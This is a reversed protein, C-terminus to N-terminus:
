NNIRLTIKLSDLQNANFGKIMYSLADNQYIINNPNSTNLISTNKINPQTEKNMTSELVEDILDLQTPYFLITRENLLQNFISEDVQGSSTSPHHQLVENIDKCPLTLSSLTINPLRVKLYISYKEVATKGAEDNDFAFIIEDLQKLNKIAETIEENLGNTGYCAIVSYEHAITQVQLLTAADIISETLILKTITPKPYKPYLGSRNKLYFHKPVTGEPAEPVPATSRFYLSVIEHHPNRLAFVICNKGFVSYAKGGKNNLLNKDLLLGYQLSQEILQEEKRQGHHFQGSNYGVEIQKYNLQRQQLYQKAPNSALVANKFYTFINQLFQEKSTSVSSVSPISTTPHNPAVSKVSPVSQLLEICKKLAEHKSINEKHMVFDIVDLSKGHTKCNGSFCYATNTKPYIQMSPTKDKHFPCNIRSNTDAQLQYHKLVETLSLQQKISSIEM